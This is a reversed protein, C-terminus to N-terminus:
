KSAYGSGFFFHSLISRKRFFNKRLGIGQMKSADGALFKNEKELAFVGFDHHSPSQRKRASAFYKESSRKEGVSSPVSFFFFCDVIGHHVLLLYVVFRIAFFFVFIEQCGAPLGLWYILHQWRAAGNQTCSDCKCCANKSCFKCFVPMSIAAAAELGKM